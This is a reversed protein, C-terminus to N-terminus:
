QGEKVAQEEALVKEIEAQTAGVADKGVLHLLPASGQSAAASLEREILDAAAGAADALDLFAATKFKGKNIDSRLRNYALEALAQMSRKEPLAESAAKKKSKAKQDAKKM